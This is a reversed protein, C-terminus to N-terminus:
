GRRRHFDQEGAGEKGWCDDEEEEEEEEKSLISRSLRSSAIAAREEARLWMGWM